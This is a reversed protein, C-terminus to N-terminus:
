NDILFYNKNKNLNFKFYLSFLFFKNKIRINSLVGLNPFLDYISKIKNQKIFNHEVYLYVGLNHNLFRLKLNNEHHSELM